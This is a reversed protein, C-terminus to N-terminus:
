SAVGVHCLCLMCVCVCVDVCLMVTLQPPLEYVSVCLVYMDM